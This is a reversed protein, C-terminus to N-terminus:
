HMLGSPEAELLALAMWAKDRLAQPAQWYTEPDATLYASLETAEDQTLLNNDVMEILTAQM